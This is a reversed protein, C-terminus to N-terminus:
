YSLAYFWQTKLGTPTFTLKLRTAYSIKPQKKASMKSLLHSINMVEYHPKEWYYKELYEKRIKWLRITTEQKLERIIALTSVKPKNKIM